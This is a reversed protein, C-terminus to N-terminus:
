EEYEHQDYQMVLVALELKRIRLFIDTRLQRATFESIRRLWDFLPGSVFLLCCAEFPTDCFGLSGDCDVINVIIAGVTIGLPGGCCLNFIFPIVCKGAWIEQDEEEEERFLVRLIQKAVPEGASDLKEPPFNGRLFKVPDNFLDLPLNLQTDTERPGCISSGIDRGQLNDILDNDTQCSSQSQASALSNGFNLNEESPINFLDTNEADFSSDLIFDSSGSPGYGLNADALNLTDPQAIDDVSLLNEPLSTAVFLNFVIILSSFRLICMILDHPNQKESSDLVGEAHRHFRFDKIIYIPPRIKFLM